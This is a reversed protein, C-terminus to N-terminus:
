ELGWDQGDPVGRIKDITAWVAKLGGRSHMELCEAISLGFSRELHPLDNSGNALRFSGGWRLGHSQGVEGYLKWLDRKMDAPEKELYPDAGIFAADFALGYCHYSLGPRANTVIPGSLDTRGKAYLAEQEEFSRMGQAIGIKRKTMIYYDEIVLYASARMPPYLKAIRQKSIESTISLQSPTPSWKPDSKQSSM